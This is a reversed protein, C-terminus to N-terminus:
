MPDPTFASITRILGHILWIKELRAWCIANILSPYGKLFNGAFAFVFSAWAFVATGNKPARHSGL